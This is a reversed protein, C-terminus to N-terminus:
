PNEDIPASGFLGAPPGAPETTGSREPGDERGDGEGRANGARRRRLEVEVVPATLTTRVVSDRYGERSAALEIPADLAPVELTFPVEGLVRQGVRVEARETGEFRLTRLRPVALAVRDRAARLAETPVAEEAEARSALAAAAPDAVGDLEASDHRQRPGAGLRAGGGTGVGGLGGGGPSTVPELVALALDAQLTEDGEAGAVEVPAREEDSLALNIPETQAENGDGRFAGSAFLGAAALPVIFASVFLGVRRTRKGSATTERSARARPREPPTVLEGESRGSPRAAVTRAWEKVDAPAPTRDIHGRPLTVTESALVLNPADIAELADIMERASPYREDRDKETARKIVPGLACSALSPDLDLPTPAAQVALLRIFSNGSVVPVGLLLEGLILGVSYLDSRGDVDAQGLAQEPSMYNPTGMLVDTRTIKGKPDALAKAIGFDLIKVFDHEGFFDCLLVNEPKLDRHVVGKAHAEALGKLIQLGIRRARAQTMAGDHDLVDALSRGAALEMVYFPVGAETEAVDLVRITNPHRLQKAVYIEREFRAKLNPDDLVHPRVIKVAVDEDLGIQTARFVTGFGGRGIQEQLVYRGQLVDGTEPMEKM